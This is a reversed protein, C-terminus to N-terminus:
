LFVFISIPIIIAQLNFGKSQWLLKILSVNEIKTIVSQQTPKGRNWIFSSFRSEPHLSQHGIMDITTSWPATSFNYTRQLWELEFEDSLVHRKWLVMTWYLYLFRTISSKLTKCHNYQPRRPQSATYDSLDLVQLSLCCTDKSHQYENALGCLTM